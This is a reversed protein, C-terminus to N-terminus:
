GEFKYVRFAEAGAATKISAAVAVHNRLLDEEFVDAAKKNEKFPNLETAPTSAIFYVTFGKFYNSGKTQIVDLFNEVYLTPIAHYFFRRYFIWELTGLAVNDNYIILTKQPELTKPIRAAFIQIFDNLHRNTSEPIAASRTGQLERTLYRDLAAIGYDEGEFFNIRVTRTFEFLLLGVVLVRFAFRYRRQEWLWALALGGFAVFPFAYLTLFRAASGIVLLLLTSFVVYSGLFIAASSQRLVRRAFFMAAGIGALALSPLGYYAPLNKGIDRFPAQIKGLLGTWEPTAQRLAYAIQLDFHGRARYLEINYIIVPSFVVLALAFAAYLRWDRFMNRRTVVAFVLTTPVLFITTYKALLAAGLAVGFAWWLGARELFFLFMYLALLALALAASEMLAVRSIGVSPNMIALLGAAFLAATEASTEDLVGRVLRWVLAYAFIVALLGWLAAPLRAVFLSDGFLRFFIHNLFFTLPPHDHFSLRTWSPLDGTAYWDVPQTQFSTGLYDLYGISRFAYTAEDGLIDREGIGWLRLVAGLLVIACLVAIRYRRMM